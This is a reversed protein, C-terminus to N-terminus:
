YFVSPTFNGQPTRYEGMTMITMPKVARLGNDLCWRFLSAQRSPLLFSLPEAAATGAGLILARMDDETEAVSHNAIWFTPAALYGTLRGGREVIVPAFSPVAAALEGSRSFGHIRSHLEGCAELDHKTLPRVVAGIAPKRMPRGAMLVVPERVEFGLSAYLSLSRMNFGDQLLRIGVANRGREIVAEMLRRGVGRGQAHPDVTIPGVGRIPDKESLFNSGVVRGNEEAVVAFVNPDSIFSRALQIGAEPSPFDPAFGHERAINEFAKFIIRGCAESDSPAARRINVAM